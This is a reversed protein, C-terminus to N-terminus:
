CILNMQDNLNYSCSIVKILATDENSILCYLDIEPFNCLKAENLRGMVFTYYRRGSALILTQLRNVLSQTKEATLGMSGIIIGITRSESVKAVGGYRENFERLTDGREVTVVNTLPSYARIPINSLRLLINVLQERKEGIYLLHLNESELELVSKPVIFGGVVESDPDIKSVAYWNELDAYSPLRPLFVNTQSRREKLEAVLNV